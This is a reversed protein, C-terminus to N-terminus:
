SPMDNDDAVEYIAEALKTKVTAATNGSDVRSLFEVEDANIDLSFGPTGDKRKYERGSVPGIVCVKMGKKVFNSCNEGLKRWASIGFYTTNDSGDKNKRGNVAVTFSCVPIGDLTSRLSPENCVNGIITLKNM